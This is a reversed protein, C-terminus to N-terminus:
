FIRKQGLKGNKQSNRLKLFFLIPIKSWWYIGRINRRCNIDDTPSFNEFVVQFSIKFVNFKFILTNFYSSLIISKSKTIEESFEFNHFFHWIYFSPPIVLVLLIHLKNRAIKHWQWSKRFSGFNTTIRLAQM